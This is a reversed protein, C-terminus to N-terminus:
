PEEPIEPSSSRTAITMDGLGLPITLSDVMHRQELGDLFRVTLVDGPELAPNAAVTLDLQSNFSTVKPLLTNAASLAQAATTIVPSSYFYPVQGYVSVYTPSLPDTDWVIQPTFPVAGDVNSPRVVVGSYTRSDDVSRSGSVLVASSVGADVTWVPATVITPEDRVVINGDPDFYAEAGIAPALDKNIAEDRDRDWVLAGVTAASTATVEYGAAPVADVMLRRIEDRVLAGLTSAEPSTFRARQVRAFRDPASSVVISDSIGASISRRDVRFVGLASYETQGNLFAVGRYARLEVGPVLLDWLTTDTITVDLKRRVGRDSSVTVSGGSIPVDGEILTLGSWLEVKTAVTHSYRLADFFGTTQARM